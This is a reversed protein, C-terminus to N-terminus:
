KNPVLVELTVYVGTKAQPTFPEAILTGAIGDNGVFSFQERESSHYENSITYARQRLEKQYYDSIFKADVTQSQWEITIKDSIPHPTTLKDWLTALSQSTSTTNDSHLPGLIIQPLTTALLERREKYKGRVITVREVADRDYLPISEPFNTPIHSSKEPGSGLLIRWGILTGIIVVILCGCGGLCSSKVLSPKKSLEQLPPDVIEIDDFKMKM